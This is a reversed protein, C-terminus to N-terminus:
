MSSAQYAHYFRIGVHEPAVALYNRMELCTCSDHAQSERTRFYYRQSEHDFLVTSRGPGVERM